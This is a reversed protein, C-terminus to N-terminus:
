SIPKRLKALDDSITPFRQFDDSFQDKPSHFKTRSAREPFIIINFSELVLMYM